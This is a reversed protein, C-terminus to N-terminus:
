ITVVVKGVQQNSELYRHAQAIDAFAFTRDIIPKFHGAEVGEIVFRKGLALRAPDRTMFPLTFAHITLNRALAKELPYPTPETTMIGYPVLVGDEGLADVLTEVGPGGIPDFALRAGDGGTLRKVESALDQEDTVVVHAAGAQLLADRKSAKRTAAIPIAGLSKAVQIAGVGVSSSAATIIVTEGASLRGYEVLGGYATLYQMWISAAEALSLTQPHKVVAEAPVIAADGYVGYRNMSFMPITSVVDGPALGTVGEGVAEVEGAAEYGLKAPLVPVEPYVGRRFMSEARNLGLTRVRMRVEGAAPAGLDLEDFQLVEPGGIRHFRVIRSM